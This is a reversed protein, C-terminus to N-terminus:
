APREFVAISEVHTTHPFMDMVGAATLTFGQEAVLIGADRALSGPHCSIYVVRRPQWHAMRPLLGAAGARPPDLLVLDYHESAWEGFTDPEFLNEVAFHANGIGNNVANAGAKAVLPADGEVGLVRGARAALPLTFNGLGCFLDLVSDSAAP